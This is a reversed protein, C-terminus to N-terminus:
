PTDTPEDESRPETLNRRAEVIRDNIRELEAIRARNDAALDALIAEVREMVAVESLRGDGDIASILAKIATLSVELERLTVIVRLRDLDDPSYLRRLGDRDPALLGSQEYFRLTRLSVRLHASLQGITYSTREELPEFSMIPQLREVVDVILKKTQVM